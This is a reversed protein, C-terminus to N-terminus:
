QHTGTETHDEMTTMMSQYHEMVEDFNLVEGGTESVLAQAQDPSTYAVLGFAMPTPLDPNLVYTATEARIWSEDQHDHVFFATVNDKKSLHTKFMGGIDDFIETDGDPTVYAAAFRADSIIMGCADCMDEGYHITPPVPEGTSEGGCATLAALLITTILLFHLRM